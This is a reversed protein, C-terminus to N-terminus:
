TLKTVARRWFRWAQGPRLRYRVGDAFDLVLEALAGRRLDRLAPLLRQAELPSWDRADRLDVLRHPPDVPDAEACGALALLDIADTEIASVRGTVREPLVGAGWFWLGNVALQGLAARRVNLPHHHLLIQAENFLARWRRGDPGEPLHAFLDDGLVADPAAFAPLPTASPLQLYWRPPTPASLALGAEAFLPRLALLLDECDDASLDLGGCALLRVGNLDPRLHSPDARLWLSGAADGADHQRTLAAMPWCNPTLSFYRRLQAVAGSAGGAEVEARALARALPGSIAQGALRRREPLM